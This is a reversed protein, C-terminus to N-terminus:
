VNNPLSGIPYQNKDHEKQCEDSRSKEISELDCEIYYPLNEIFKICDAAFGYLGVTPTLYLLNLTEYIHGSYCNCIVSAQGEWCQELISQIFNTSSIRM